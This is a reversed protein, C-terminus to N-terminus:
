GGTWGACITPRTWIPRIAQSTSRTSWTPTRALLARAGEDPGAAAIADRWLAAVHRDPHGREATITPRGRDPRPALRTSTARVAEAGIGPVDVLLVALADAGALGAADVALALSSRMGRAPDPNIM